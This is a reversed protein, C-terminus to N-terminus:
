QKKIVFFENQYVSLEGINDVECLRLNNEMVNQKGRQVFIDSYIIPEDVFGLFHENRTILKNFVEEKTFGVTTGTIM